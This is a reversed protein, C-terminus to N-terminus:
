TFVTDRMWAHTAADTHPNRLDPLMARRSALYMTATADAEVAFDECRVRRIRVLVKPTM